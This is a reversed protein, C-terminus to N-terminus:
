PKNDWCKSVYQLWSLIRTVTNQKHKRKKGVGSNESKKHSSQNPCHDKRRSTESDLGGTDLQHEDALAKGMDDMSLSSLVAIAYTYVDGYTQSFKVWEDYVNEAEQNGSRKFKERIKSLTGRIERFNKRIWTSDRPPRSGDSPNLAYCFSTISGMNPRPKYPNIPVGDQYERTVNQFQYKEYDNFMEALQQFAADMDKNDLVERSAPSLATRWLLSAEPLEMLHLLRARDHKNTNANNKSTTAAVDVEMDRAREIVYDRFSESQKKFFSVTKNKQDENMADWRPYSSFFAKNGFCEEKKMEKLAAVIADPDLDTPWDCEEGSTM